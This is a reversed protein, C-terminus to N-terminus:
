SERRRNSRILPSGHCWGGGACDRRCAAVVVECVHEGLVRDLDDRSLAHPELVAPAFADEVHVPAVRHGTEAVAMRGPRTRERLLRLFAVELRVGNVHLYAQ